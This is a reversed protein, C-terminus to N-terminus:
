LKAPVPAKSHKCRRNERHRLARKRESSVMLRGSATCRGIEVKVLRERTRAAAVRCNKNSWELLQTGGPSAKTGATM